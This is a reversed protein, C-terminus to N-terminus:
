HLLTGDWLITIIYHYQPYMCYMVRGGEERRGGEVRGGGGEVRGGEERRSGGPPLM